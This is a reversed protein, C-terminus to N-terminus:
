FVFDVCARTERIKGVFDAVKLHAPHKAYRDLADADAFDAVLVIHDNADGNISNIGVQFFRIEPISAPLADLEQKM